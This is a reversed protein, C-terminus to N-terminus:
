SVSLRNGVSWAVCLLFAVESEHWIANTDEARQEYSALQTSKLLYWCSTETNKSHIASADGQKYGSKIRRQEYLM